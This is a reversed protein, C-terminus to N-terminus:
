KAECPLELVELSARLALNVSEDEWELRDFLETSGFVRFTNLNLVSTTGFRLREFIKCGLLGLTELSPLDM